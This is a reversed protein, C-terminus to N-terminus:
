FFPVKIFTTNEDYILAATTYWAVAAICVSLVGSAMILGNNALFHGLTSTLFGFFVCTLTIRILWPQRLTGLLFVFSIITYGLMFVGVSQNLVHEGYQEALQLFGSGPSFTYSFSLFFGSYTCMTTAAFTNGSLLEFLGALFQCLGVYGLCIGTIAQPLVTVNLCFMGIAFSGTGFSAFGLAAPNGPKINGIRIVPM